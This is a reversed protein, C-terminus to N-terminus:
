FHDPSDTNMTLMPSDTAVTSKRRKYNAKFCAQRLRKTDDLLQLDPAEEMLKKEHELIMLAEGLEQKADNKEQGLEKVNKILSNISVLKRHPWRRIGLERCRKKLLTMGVNLEKAAQRISVYFYKSLEERTLMKANSQGNPERSWTKNNETEDKLDDGLSNMDGATITTTTTTTTTTTDKDYYDCLLSPPQDYNLSSEHFEWMMECGSGYTCFYDGQMLTNQTPLIDLSGYLPDSYIGFMDMLPIDNLESEFNWQIEAESPTDQLSPLRQSLLSFDRTFEEKAIVENSSAM